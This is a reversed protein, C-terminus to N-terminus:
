VLRKLYKIIIIKIIIIVTFSLFGHIASFKWCYQNHLSWDCYLEPRALLGHFGCSVITATQPRSKECRTPKRKAVYYCEMFIEPTWPKTLKVTFAGM